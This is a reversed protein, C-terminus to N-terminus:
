KGALKELAKRRMIVRKLMNRKNKDADDKKGGTGEILNDIETESVEIKENKSIENLILELLISNKAQDIYEKRLGEVTKGVSKLYGELTLGLKEIRELVQSLRINVEEDILIKPVSVKVNELLSKILVNEDNKDKKLKKKLDKPLKIKPIECTIAKIEWSDDASVNKTSTIKVAEFKPYMAPRLKHEEISNSFAKPLIHNLVEQTLKEDDISSRVKEVPAKGKRFGSITTNQGIEEVVHNTTEIVINGPISLVIEINGNDLKKFTSTTKSEM